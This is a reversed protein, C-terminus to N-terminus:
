DHRAYGVVQCMRENFDIWHSATSIHAIGVAAQEFTSRFRSESQEASSRPTASSHHRDM